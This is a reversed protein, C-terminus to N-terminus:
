LINRIRIRAKLPVLILSTGLRNKGIWFRLCVPLRIDMQFGVGCTQCRLVIMNINVLNLFFFSWFQVGFTMLNLLELVAPCNEPQGLNSGEEQTQLSKREAHAQQRKPGARKLPTFLFILQTVWILSVLYNTLWVWDVWPSMWGDRGTVRVRAPWLINYFLGILLYKSMTICHKRLVYALWKKTFDLFKEPLQM